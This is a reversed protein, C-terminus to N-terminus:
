YNYVYLFFGNLFEYIQVNNLIILFNFRFKFFSYYTSWNNLNLFMFFFYVSEYTLKNIKCNIIKYNCFYWNAVLQNSFDYPENLQHYKFNLNFNLLISCILSKLFNNNYNSVTTLDFFYFFKFFLNIYFYKFINLFLNNTYPLVKKSIKLFFNLKFFNFIINFNLLFCFWKFKPTIM